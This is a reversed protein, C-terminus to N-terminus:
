TFSSFTRADYRLSFSLFRSFFSPGDDVTGKSSFLWKGGWWGARRSAVDDPAAVADAEPTGGPRAHWPGGRAPSDCPAAPSEEAPM